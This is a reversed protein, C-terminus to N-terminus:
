EILHKLEKIKMLIIYSVTRTIMNTSAILCTGGETRMVYPDAGEFPVVEGGRVEFSLHGLM